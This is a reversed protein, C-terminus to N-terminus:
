NNSFHLNSSCHSLVECWGSHSDDFFECLLHQLPHSSFLVRGSHQHSHLNTCGSHFIARFNRLFSFSSNVYSEVTGHRLLYRSFIMIWFSGHVGINMAVSNVIALVHFCGLYGNVSSHIFFIHYM